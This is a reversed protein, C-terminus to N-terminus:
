CYYKLISEIEAKKKTDGIGVARFWRDIMRYGDIEIIKDNIKTIFGEELLHENVSKLKSRDEIPLELKPKNNIIEVKGKQDFIGRIEQIYGQREM